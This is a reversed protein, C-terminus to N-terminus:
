KGEKALERRMGDEIHIMSIERRSCALSQLCTHQVINMIQSGTLEHNVALKEYSVDRALPAEKPFARQWLSLREKYAPIPFYIM